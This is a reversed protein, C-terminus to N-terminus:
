VDEVSCEGGFTAVASEIGAARLSAIIQPGIRRRGGASILIGACRSPVLSLYHGLREIVGAGQVYRAPAIFVRPPTHHGAQEAAFVAQPIYPSPLAM